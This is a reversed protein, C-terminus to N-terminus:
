IFPVIAEPDMEKFEDVTKALIHTLIIKHGILQKAMEDYQSKQSSAQVTNKIETNM